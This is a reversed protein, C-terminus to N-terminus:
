AFPLEIVKKVVGDEVEFFFPMGPKPDYTKLYDRFLEEKRTLIHPFVGYGEPIFDRGWDIFLYRTNEDLKWVVTEDDPNYVMYGSPMDYETLGLERVRKRNDPDIYEAPDVELTGDAASVIYACQMQYVDEAKDVMGYAELWPIEMKQPNYGYVMDDEVVMGPALTKEDIWDTGDGSGQGKPDGCVAVVTLALIFASLVLASIGPKRYQLVHRIRGGIEEEGFAAFPLEFTKRGTAFRLLSACYDSRIDTGAKKIVAEDCAMEMDKEYLYFSLWVLPHFWYVTLAAFALLKSLYDKRRIHIQEHLIVYGKEDETLSSPLYIRPRFLGSVFPANIYDSQFINDELRVAGVLRRRLRMLSLINCCLIVAIGAPWVYTGAQVIRGYYRGPWPTRGDPDSGDKVARGGTEVGQVLGAEEPNEYGGSGPVGANRGASMWAVDDSFVGAAPVVFSLVSVPTTFSVPCVLRFLVVAWLMCSVIKPARRLLVRAFLVALIAFSATYGMDLIVFFAAKM